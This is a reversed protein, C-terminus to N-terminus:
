TRGARGCRAAAARARVPAIIRRSAGKIAMAAIPPTASSSRTWRPPWRSSTPVDDLGRHAGAPQRGDQIEGALGAGDAVGRLPRRQARERGHDIGPM